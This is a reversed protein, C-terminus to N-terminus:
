EAIVVSVFVLYVTVLVVVLSIAVDSYVVALPYLPSLIFITYLLQDVKKARGLKHSSFGTLDLAGCCSFLGDACGDSQLQVM